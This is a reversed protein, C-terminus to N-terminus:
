FRTIKTEVKKALHSNLSQPLFWHGQELASMTKIYKYIHIYMCVYIDACVKVNKITKTM